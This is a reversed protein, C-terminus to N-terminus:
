ENRPIQDTQKSPRFLNYFREIRINRDFEERFKTSRVIIVSITFDYFKVCTQELQKLDVLIKTILVLYTCM